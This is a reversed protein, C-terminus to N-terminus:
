TPYKYLGYKLYKYRHRDCFLSGLEFDANLFNSASDSFYTKNSGSNNLIDGYFSVAIRAIGLVHM